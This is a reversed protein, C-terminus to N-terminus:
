GNRQDEDPRDHDYLWVTDGATADTIRKVTAGM